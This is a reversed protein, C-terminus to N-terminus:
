FNEDLADSFDAGEPIPPLLEVASTTFPVSQPDFDVPDSSPVITPELGVLADVTTGVGDLVVVEEGQTTIFSSVAVAVQTQIAVRDGREPCASGNLGTNISRHGAATISLDTVRSSRDPSAFELLFDRGAEPGVDEDCEGRILLLPVDLLDAVPAGVDPEILVAAAPEFSLGQATDLMSAIHGGSRSHGILAIQNLDMRGALSDIGLGLDEGDNLRGVVGLHTNVLAEVTGFEFPEGGWWVYASDVDISVAAIGVDNLATVIHGLGIDHRIYQPFDSGCLYEVTETVITDSFTEPIFDDVCPPHSGHMVIALPFPGPGEPVGLLGQVQTPRGDVLGSPFEYSTFIADGSPESPTAATSTTTEVLTTSDPASTTTPAATTAQPETTSTTELPEPAATTPESAPANTSEVADTGCSAAVLSILVLVLM